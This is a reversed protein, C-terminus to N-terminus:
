KRKNLTVKGDGDADIWVAGTSGIVYPRWDPSEPQYSKPIRWFPQTVGPGTAIAVLHLDYGPSPLNWTGQWKLGGKKDGSVRAEKAPLGNAYLTVRDVSTWSPGRVQISVRLTRERPVLDGPGYRGNVKIETLLGMSVLVRGKRFNEVAVGADIRAPDRSDCAIYTRGQGVIKRGIDHSDSSGAPTVRYGRNLLAFWDRYLRMPDSQLAGSNVVEMGDAEFAWGEVSEGTLPDFHAPDFPRYASHLDRPHNLIVVPRGLKERIGAFLGPWNLLTHDPLASGSAIPFVNFHGVNTTIESGLVPTFYQRVGNKHAASDYGALTNHETSVPLEIGEGAISLVRDDISADGHKSYTLTHIHTDCSVYGPVPSEHRLKLDVRAREGAAVTLQASEVGYEFGRTAYLTYKGATIGFEAQGSGTYVMGKGVALTTGTKASLPVLSGNADVVTIRCPLADNSEADRVTVAVAAEAIVDNLPRDYLRVDGVIIDDPLDSAAQVRVTNEGKSLAGREIRWCSVMDNEDQPLLGLERGNILLKWAQKVDRHRLRLTHERGPRDATFAVTWERGEAAAPFESWERQLGSRLHHLAPELIRERADPVAFRSALLYFLFGYAARRNV